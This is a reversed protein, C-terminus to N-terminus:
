YYTTTEVVTTTHSDHCCCCSSNCSYCYGHYNHYYHSCKPYIACAAATCIGAAALGVWGQPTSLLAALLVLSDFTRHDHRNNNHYTTTTRTFAHIQTGFSSLIVILLAYAINKKNMTVLGKFNIMPISRSTGAYCIMIQYAIYQM